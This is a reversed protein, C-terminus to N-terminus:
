AMFFARTRSRDLFGTFTDARRSNTLQILNKGNQVFAETVPFYPLQTLINPPGGPQAPVGLRVLNTRLGTVGFSPVVESGPVAIPPPVRKLNTGDIRVTFAAATHAPNSGDPDV